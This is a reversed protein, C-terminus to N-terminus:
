RFLPRSPLQPSILSTGGGRSLSLSLHTRPISPPLAMHGNRPEDVQHFVLLRGHSLLMSLACNINLSIGAGYSPSSGSAVKRALRTVARDRSIDKNVKEGAASGGPMGHCGACQRPATPPIIPEEEEVVHFCFKQLATESLRRHCYTFLFIIYWM